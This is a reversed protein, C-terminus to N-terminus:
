AAIWTLVGARLSLISDQRIDTESAEIAGTASCLKIVSRMVGGHTVCVTPGKVSELWGSVRWSLIEYSEAREGPPVFNWKDAERRHMAEPFLTKLEALTRGEWDGFCLEVLAENTAYASPEIGMATRVLEMTQRTRTMPSSVFAFDAVRDGILSQLLAGNRSAQGRGIANLPIDHQGQFRGEANWDTQGHRILYIPVDPIM